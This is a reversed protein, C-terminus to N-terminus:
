DQKRTRSWSRGTISPFVIGLAPFRPAFKALDKVRWGLIDFFGEIFSELEPAVQRFAVCPFDDVYHTWTIHALVVAVHWLARAVLFYRMASSTAGLSLVHQEYLKTTRSRSCWSGVVTFAAHAPNRALQRYAKSLDWVRGVVALGDKTYNSQRAAVEGTSLQINIDGGPEALSWCRAIGVVVDVGGTDIKVAISTAGNQGAFTFDDVARVSDGQKVGFRPVPVWLGQM